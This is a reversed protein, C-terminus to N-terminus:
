LNPNPKPLLDLLSALSRLMSTLSTGPPEAFYKRLGTTADQLDQELGRLMDLRPAAYTLFRKVRAEISFASEEATDGLSPFCGEVTQLKASLEKLGSSTASVDLDCAKQCCQLESRLTVLWTPGQTEQLQDILLDLATKPAPKGATREPASDLSRTHALKALSDLTVGTASGLAQSSSNVYNGLLLVGELFIPIATSTVVAGAAHLGSRITSELLETEKPFCTVILTAQVRSM